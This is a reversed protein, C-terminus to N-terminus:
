MVQRLTGVLDEGNGSSIAATMGQSLEAPNRRLFDGFSAADIAQINYNVVVPRVSRLGGRYDYDVLNGRIDSVYDAGTPETFQRAAQADELDKRRKVKPDGMLGAIMGLGMGAIM